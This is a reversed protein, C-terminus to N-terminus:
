QWCSPMPQTSMALKGRAESQLEALDKGALAEDEYKAITWPKGKVWAIIYWTGKIRKVILSSARLVLSKNAESLREIM